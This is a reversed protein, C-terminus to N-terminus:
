GLVDGTHSTKFFPIEINTTMKYHYYSFYSKKQFPDYIGGGKREGHNQARMGGSYDRRRM